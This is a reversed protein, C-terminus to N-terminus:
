CRSLGAQYTEWRTGKRVNGQGLANWRTRVPRGLIRQEKRGRIRPKVKKWAEGDFVQAAGPRYLTGDPAVNFGRNWWESREDPEWVLGEAGLRIIGEPRGQWVGDASAGIAGSADAIWRYIQGPLERWGFMVLELPRSLDRIGDSVVHYVGPEVEEAVLEVGPLLGDVDSPEQAVAAPGAAMLAVMTLGAISLRLTRM